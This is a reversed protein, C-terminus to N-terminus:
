QKTPGVICLNHETKPLIQNFDRYGGQHKQQKSNNQSAKPIPPMRVIAKHKSTLAHEHLRQDHHPEKNTHIMEEKSRGRKNEFIMNGLHRNIQTRKTKATNWRNHKMETVNTVHRKPIQQQRRRQGPPKMTEYENTTREM